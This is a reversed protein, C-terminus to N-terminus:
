SARAFVTNFIRGRLALPPCSVCSIVPKGHLLLSRLLPPKPHSCKPPHLKFRLRWDESTQASLRLRQGRSVSSSPLRSKEPTWEFVQGSSSAKFSCAQEEGSGNEGRRMGGSRYTFYSRMTAWSPFNTTRWSFLTRVSLFLSICALSVLLLWTPNSISLVSGPPVSRFCHCSPTYESQPIRRDCLEGPSPLSESSILSAAVHSRAAQVCRCEAIPM